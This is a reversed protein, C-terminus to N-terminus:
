RRSSFISSLELVAKQTMSGSSSVQDEARLGSSQKVSSRRRALGKGFRGTFTQLGSSGNYWGDAEAQVQVSGASPYYDWGDIRYVAM